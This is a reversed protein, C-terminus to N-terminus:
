VKLVQVVETGSFKSMEKMDVVKDAENEFTSAQESVASTLATIHPANHSFFM